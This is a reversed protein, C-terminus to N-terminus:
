FPLDDPDYEPDYNGYVNKAKNKKRLNSELRSLRKKKLLKTQSICSEIKKNNSKLKFFDAKLIDLASQYEKLYSHYEDLKEDDFCEANNFIGVFDEHIEEFNSYITEIENKLNVITNYDIKNKNM